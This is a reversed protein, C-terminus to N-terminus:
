VATSAVRATDAAVASVGASAAWQSRNLRSIAGSVAQISSPKSRSAARSRTAVLRSAVRRSVLRSNLHDSSRRTPASDDRRSKVSFSFMGASATSAM